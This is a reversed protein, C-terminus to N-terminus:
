LMDQLEETKYQINKKINNINEGWSCYTFMDAENRDIHQLTHM